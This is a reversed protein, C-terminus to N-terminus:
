DQSCLKIIHVNTHLFFRKLPYVRQNFINQSKTLGKLNCKWNKYYIHNMAFKAQLIYKQINTQFKHDEYSFIWMKSRDLNNYRILIHVIIETVFSMNLSSNVGKFNKLRQLWVMFISLFFDRLIDVSLTVSVAIM